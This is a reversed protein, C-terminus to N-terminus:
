NGSAPQKDPLRVLMWQQTNDKGFHILVPSQEKTLNEIGSEYITTKNDGVTWCVRQNKKDLSGHVQLTTGALMDSYNGAVAGSKSLALQFVANADTQNG